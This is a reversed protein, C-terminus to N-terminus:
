PRSPRTRRRRVSMWTLRRWGNGEHVAGDWHYVQAYRVGDLPTDGFHGREIAM